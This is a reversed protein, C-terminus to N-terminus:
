WDAPRVVDEPKGAVQWAERGGCYWYINTYGLAVLRLALNRGDFHESKVGVVVIPRGPDGGTLTRLKETKCPHTPM